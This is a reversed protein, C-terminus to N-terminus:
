GELEDLQARLDDLEIEEIDDPPTQREAVQREQEARLADAIDGRNAWRAEDSSRASELLLEIVGLRFDVASDDVRGEHFVFPADSTALMRKVMRVVQETLGTRLCDSTVLEHVELARGIRGQKRTHYVFFAQLSERDLAGQEVLIEGLRSDPPSNDSFAEVIDGRSLQMTIRETPLTVQLLGTKGQVQLFGLFDPISITASSGHVAGTRQRAPSQRLSAISGAMKLQTDARQMPASRVLRDVVGSFRSLLRAPPGTETSDPRREVAEYALEVHVLAKRLREEVLRSSEESRALKRVENTLEQCQAALTRVKAKVESNM